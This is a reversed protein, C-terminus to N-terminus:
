DGRRPAPAARRLRRPLVEARDAEDELEHVAEQLLQTGLVMRDGGSDLQPVVQVKDGHARDRVQDRKEALVPNEGPVAQPDELLRARGPRRARISTEPIDLGASIWGTSM